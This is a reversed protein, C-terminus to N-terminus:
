WLDTARPWTFPVQMGFKLKIPWFNGIDWKKMNPQYTPQAPRCSHIIKFRENDLHRVRICKWAFFLPALEFREQSIGNKCNKLLVQPVSEIHITKNNLTKRGLKMSSRDSISLSHCNSFKAIPLMKTLRIPRISVAPDNGFMVTAHPRTFHVQM